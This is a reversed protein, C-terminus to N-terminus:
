DYRWFVSIGDAIILHCVGESQGAAIWLQQIVNGICSRCPDYLNILGIGVKSREAQRM